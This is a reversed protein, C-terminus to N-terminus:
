IPHTETLQGQPPVQPQSSNCDKGEGVLHAQLALLTTTIGLHAPAQGSDEEAGRLGPPRAPPGGLSPPDRGAQPPARRAAPPALRPRPAWLLPAPRPRVGVVM